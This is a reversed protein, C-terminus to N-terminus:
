EVGEVERGGVVEVRVEKVVVKMMVVEVVVVVRGGVEGVVAPRSGCRLRERKHRTKWRHVVCSVQCRM